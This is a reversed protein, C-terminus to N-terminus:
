TAVLRSFSSKDLRNDFFDSANCTTLEFSWNGALNPVISNIMIESQYSIKPGPKKSVVNSSYAEDIEIQDYSASRGNVGVRNYSTMYNHIIQTGNLKITCSYYPLDIKNEENVYNRNFLTIRLTINDGENLIYETQWNKPLFRRVEFFSEINGQVFTGFLGFFLLFIETWM